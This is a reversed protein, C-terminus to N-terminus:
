WRACDGSSTRMWSCDRRRRRQRPLGGLQGVVCAVKALRNVMDRDLGLAKGVDRIASRPRYTIVTAALAARERGYKEFVYQIVEERREHEFDVDIDPPENREKSLFREFLAAINDPDSKPSACRM